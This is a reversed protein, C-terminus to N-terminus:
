FGIDCKTRSFASGNGALPIKLDCDADPKYKNTKIRWVKFRIRSYIKVEVKFLGDDRQKNFENVDGSSLVLMQEGNFSPYLMTTNKHGQYFTPLFASHFRQGNFFARAELRDYYIGVRRNPNRVSIDLSLNYHLLNNDTLNFRTLRAQDVHVKIRAPRLVLWLVLVIIGVIIVLSVIFKLIASLLCCPGCCCSSSRGHSHYSRSPPIPPGYYAGNLHAGTGKAEGM